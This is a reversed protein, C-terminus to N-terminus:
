REMSLLYSYKSGSGRNGWVCHFISVCAKAPLSIINPAIEFSGSATIYIDNEQTERPFACV